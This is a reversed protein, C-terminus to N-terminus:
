KSDGSVRVRMHHATFEVGTTRYLVPGTAYCYSTQGPVDPCRVTRVKKPAPMALIEALLQETETMFNGKKPQRCGFIHLFIRHFNAKVTWREFSRLRQVSGALCLRM